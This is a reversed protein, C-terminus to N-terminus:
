RQSPSKGAGAAPQLQSTLCEALSKAAICDVPVEVHIPTATSVSLTRQTAADGVTLRIFSPLQAQQQWDERWNRDLGAYSFSLRYPPRLLVVPNTFALQMRDLGPTFPARTRVVVLGHDSTTEAIRVVELGPGSSPGLTTRVFTVSQNAGDFFPKPSEHSTSIFESAALDAAVRELGLAVQENRQVRVLGYNWNPLWQATIAALAALILGMLMTAVLAEVLTFGATTVSSCERRMSM